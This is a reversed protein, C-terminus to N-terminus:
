ASGAVNKHSCRNSTFSINRRMIDPGLFPSHMTDTTGLPIIRERRMVETPVGQNHPFFYARKNVSIM